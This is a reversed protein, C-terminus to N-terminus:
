VHHPFAERLLSGTSKDTAETEEHRQVFASPQGYASECCSQQKEVCAPDDSNYVPCVFEPLSGGETGVLNEWRLQPVNEIYLAAPNGLYQINPADNSYQCVYFPGNTCGPPSIDCSIQTTSKWMKATYHGVEILSYLFFLDLQLLSSDYVYSQFHSRNFLMFQILVAQALGRRLATQGM